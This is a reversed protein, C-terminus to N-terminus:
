AAEGRMLDAFEVLDPRLEAPSIGTKESISSVLSQDPRREGSEWRSITAKSVGLDRALETRSIKLRERYETLAKIGQM